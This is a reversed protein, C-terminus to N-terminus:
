VGTPRGMGTRDRTRTCFILIKMTLTRMEKKNAEHGM